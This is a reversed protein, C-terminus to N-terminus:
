CGYITVIKKNVREKRVFLREDWALTKRRDFVVLWGKDCGLTDMYALTQTVGEAYVHDGYRIKM